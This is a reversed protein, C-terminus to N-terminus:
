GLSHDREVIGSDIDSTVSVCSRAVDWFVNLPSNGIANDFMFSVAELMLEEGGVNSLLQVRGGLALL